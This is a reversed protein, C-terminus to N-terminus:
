TMAGQSKQNPHAKNPSRAASSVGAGAAIVIAALAGLLATDELAGCEARPLSEPIHQVDRGSDPGGQGQGTAKEQM